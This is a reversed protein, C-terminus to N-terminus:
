AVRVLKAGVEGDRRWIVKYTGNRFPGDSTLLLTFEEPVPFGNAQVCVTGDSVDTVVCYIPVAGAALQIKAVRAIGQRPAQCREEIKQM